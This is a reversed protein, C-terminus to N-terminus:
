RSTSASIVVRTTYARTTAGPSDQQQENGPGLPIHITLRGRKGARRIVKRTGGAGRLTVRFRRRPKYRAPTVVTAAGSGTLTFGRRGAGSLRSFELAPREIRVRWGYVRYRPEAAEFRVRKPAAPPNAFADTIQPLTQKLDRAWYPWSHAGPGYDDWVHPYSLAELREHFTTMQKHVGTELADPGGGFDGGQEGNGTRLTLRLGKVNGALDTPNHAKWRVLQTERPGFLSGPPAGDLLSFADLANGFDPDNIDVAGSFAAAAVFMDPHRAAYSMAGFGGMSLGALARGARGARTRFHADVWPILQGVHYTEYMPPGGSGNNYWDTYFGGRGSAPMVVILDQGATAQEVEGHTTWAQSGDVDYDCCGHLLYLVPYRKSPNADYGDPLLVRLNTEDALARTTLGYEILRPDLHDERTVTLGHDAAAAQAATALLVAVAAILPAVRMPRLPDWTPAGRPAAGLAV